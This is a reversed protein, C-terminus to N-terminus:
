VTLVYFTFIFAFVGGMALCSIAAVMVGLAQTKVGAKRDRRRASWLALLILLGSLIFIASTAAPKVFLAWTQLSM